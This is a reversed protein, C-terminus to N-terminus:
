EDQFTDNGQDQELIIAVIINLEHVGARKGPSKLKMRKRKFRRRNKNQWRPRDYHM